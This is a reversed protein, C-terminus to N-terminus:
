IDVGRGSDAQGIGRFDGTVSVGTSSGAPM